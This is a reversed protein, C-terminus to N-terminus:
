TSLILKRARECPLLISQRHPLLPVQTQLSVSSVTQALGALRSTYNELIGDTERALGESFALADKLAAARATANAM